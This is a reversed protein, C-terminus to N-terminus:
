QEVTHKKCQAQTVLLSSEQDATLDPKHNVALGLAVAQVQAKIQQVPQKLQLEVAEPQVQQQAVQM